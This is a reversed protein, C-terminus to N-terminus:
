KKTEKKEDIAARFGGITLLVGLFGLIAKIEINAPLTLLAAELGLLIGGWITKSKYWVKM